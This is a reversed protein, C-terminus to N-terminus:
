APSKTRRTNSTTRTELDEGDLYARAEESLDDTEAEEDLLDDLRRRLTAHIAGVSSVLRKQMLAM